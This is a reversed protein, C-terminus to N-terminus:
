APKGQIRGAVQQSRELLNEIRELQTSIDTARMYRPGEFDFEIGYRYTHGIPRVYRVIGALKELQITGMDMRLELGVVVEDELRLQLKTEIAVGLKHYDHPKVELWEEGFLGKKIRLNAKLEAAPIRRRNRRDDPIENHNGAM